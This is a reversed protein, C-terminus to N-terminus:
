FNLERLAYGVQCFCSFNLACILVAARNNREYVTAAM